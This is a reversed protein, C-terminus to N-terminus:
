NTNEDEWLSPLNYMYIQYAEEREAPTRAKQVAEWRQQQMQQQHWIHLLADRNADRALALPASILSAMLLALAIILTRM